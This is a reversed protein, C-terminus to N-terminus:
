SYLFYLFYLIFLMVVFLLSFATISCKKTTAQCKKETFYAFWRDVMTRSQEWWSKRKARRGMEPKSIVIKDVWLRDRCVLVAPRQQETSSRITTLTVAEAVMHHHNFRALLRKISLWWITTMEYMSIMMMARVNGYHPTFKQRKWGAREHTYIHVRLFSSKFQFSHFKLQRLCCCCRRASVPLAWYAWNTATKLNLLLKNEILKSSRIRCARRLKHQWQLLTAEFSRIEHRKRRLKKEGEIYM